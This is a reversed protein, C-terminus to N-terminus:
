EEIGFWQRENERLDCDEDFCYRAEEEDLELLKDKFLTAIEELRCRPIYDDVKCRFYEVAAFFMNQKAEKDGWHTFYTGNSWQQNEPETADYGSAVIYQNDDELLACRKEKNEFILKRM